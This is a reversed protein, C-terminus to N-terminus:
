SKLDSPIAYSVKRLNDSSLRYIPQLIVFSPSRSRALSPWDSLEASSFRATREAGTSNGLGLSLFFYVREMEEYFFDETM